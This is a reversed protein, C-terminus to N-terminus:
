NKLAPGQLWDRRQSGSTPGVCMRRYFAPTHAMWNETEEVSGSDM